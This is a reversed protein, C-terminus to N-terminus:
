KIFVKSIYLRRRQFTNLCHVLLLRTKMLDFKPRYNATLSFDTCPYPYSIIVSISFHYGRLEPWSGCCHQGRESNLSFLVEHHGSQHGGLSSLRYSGQIIILLYQPTEPKTTSVGEMWHRCDSHDSQTREVIACFQEHECLIPLVSSRNSINNM